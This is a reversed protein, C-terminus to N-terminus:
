FHLGCTAAVMITASNQKEFLLSIERISITHMAYFRFMDLDHLVLTFIM